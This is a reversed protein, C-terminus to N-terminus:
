WSSSSSDSNSDDQFQEPHTIKYEETHDLLFTKEYTKQGIERHCTQHMRGGVIERAGCKPPFVFSQLLNLIVFIAVAIILIPRHILRTPESSKNEKLSKDRLNLHM